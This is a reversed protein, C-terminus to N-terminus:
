MRWMAYVFFRGHVLTEWRTYTHTHTRTLSYKFQYLVHLYCSFGNFVHMGVLQVWRMIKITKMACVICASTTTTTTIPPTTTTITTNRHDTNLYEITCILQNREKKKRETCENRQLVKLRKLYGFLCICPPECTWHHPLIYGHLANMQSSIFMFHCVNSM